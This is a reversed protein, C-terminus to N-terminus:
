YLSAVQLAAGKRDHRRRRLRPFLRQWLGSDALPRAGMAPAVAARRTQRDCGVARHRAGVDGDDRHRRPQLNRDRALSRELHGRGCHCGQRHRAAPDDGGVGDCRHPTGAPVLVSLGHRRHRGQDGRRAGPSQPRRRLCAGQAV